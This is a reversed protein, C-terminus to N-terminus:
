PGAATGCGACFRATPSLVRGCSACTRETATRAGCAACFRANARMAAGCSACAASVEDAAVPPEVAVRRSFEDLRDVLTFFAAADIPTFRGQAAEGSISEWTIGWAGLPSSLVGALAVEGEGGAMTRRGSLAGAAIVSRFVARIAQGPITLRWASDAPQVLELKALGALGSGLAAASSPLPLPAVAAGISCMWRLDPRATASEVAGALDAATFELRVPETRRALTAELERQYTVDAIALLAAWAELSFSLPDGHTPPLVDFHLRAATERAADAATPYARIVTAGSATSASVLGEAPNATGFASVVRWTQEEPVATAFTLARAPAALLRLARVLDGRLAEGGPDLMGATRLQELAPEEPDVMGAAGPVRLGSVAAAAAGLLPSLTFERVTGASPLATTM